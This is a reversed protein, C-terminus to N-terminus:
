IIKEEKLSAIEEKSLGLWEAYVEENHQGLLPAPRYEVPSESMKVPCGPMKFKGRLPHNIETITGRKNFHPDNVVEATDYVPAAPVGAENLIHFVEMKTKGGAWSDIAKRVEPNTRAKMPNGKLESTILDERGIAKMLNEYDRPVVLLICAYDNPWEGKCKIVDSQQSMMAPMAKGDITTNSGISLRNMEIVADALAVDISQGNGTRRAQILAALIAAAMYVGAGADAM